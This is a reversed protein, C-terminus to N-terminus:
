NRLWTFAPNMMIKHKRTDSHLRNTSSHTMSLENNNKLIIHNMHLDFATTFFVKKARSRNYVLSQPSFFSYLLSVTSGYLIHTMQYSDNCSCQRGQSWEIQVISEDIWTGCKVLPSSRVLLVFWKRGQIYIVHIWLYM